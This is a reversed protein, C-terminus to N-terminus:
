LSIRLRTMAKIKPSLKTKILLFHNQNFEFSKNNPCDLQPVLASNPKIYQKFRKVLRFCGRLLIANGAVNSLTISRWPHEERKKFLVFRVLDRLIDCIYVPNYRSQDM